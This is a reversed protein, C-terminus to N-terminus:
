VSFSMLQKAKEKLSAVQSANEGVIIIKASKLLFASGTYVNNTFEQEVSESLQSPLVFLSTLGQEGKIILYLSKISNLYCYNASVIDGMGDKIQGNYSALKNNVSAIDTPGYKNIEYAVHDMHAFVDNTLNGSSMNFVAISLVSALVVSAALALYWPQRKKHKQFRNMSQRLILKEALDEPVPIDMAQKLSSEMGRIENWFAQKKPDNKAAAIVDPDKTFPDAYITRRFTIDDM